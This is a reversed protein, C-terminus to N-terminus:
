SPFVTSTTRRNFDPLLIHLANYCNGSNDYILNSKERGVREQLVAIACSHRRTAHSSPLSSPITLIHRLTGTWRPYPTPVLVRRHPRPHRQKTIDM